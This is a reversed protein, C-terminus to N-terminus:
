WTPKLKLLSQIFKNNGGWLFWQICHGKVALEDDGFDGM